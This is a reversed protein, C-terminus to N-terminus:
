NKEYREKIKKHKEVSAAAVANPDKVGYGKAKAAVKKFNKGKKGIDKGARAKKVVDSRETKTLKAAAAYRSKYSEFSQEGFFDREEGPHEEIWKRRNESDKSNKLKQRRVFEENDEATSEDLISDQDIEGMLARVMKESYEEFTKLNNM